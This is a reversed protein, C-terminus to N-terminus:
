LLKFMAGFWLPPGQGGKHAHLWRTAKVSSAGSTAPNGNRTQSVLVWNRMVFFADLCDDLEQRPELGIVSALLECLRKVNCLLIIYGSLRRALGASGM